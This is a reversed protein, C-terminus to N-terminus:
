LCLASIAAKWRSLYPGLYMANVASASPGVPAPRVRLHSRGPVRDEERVETIGKFEVCRGNLGM